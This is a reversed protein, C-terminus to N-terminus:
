LKRASESRGASLFANRACSLDMLVLDVPNRYERAVISADWSLIFVATDNCPSSAKVRISMRSWTLLCITIPADQKIGQAPM